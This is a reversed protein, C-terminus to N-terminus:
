LEDLAATTTNEGLKENNISLIVIGSEEGGVSLKIYDGPRSGFLALGLSSDIPLDKPHADRPEIAEVLRFEHPQSDACDIITVWSGIMAMENEGLIIAKIIRRCKKRMIGLTELSVLFGVDINM